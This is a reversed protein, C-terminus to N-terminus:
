QYAPLAAKAPTPAAAPAVRARCCRSPPSCPPASTANAVTGRYGSRARYVSATARTIIATCNAYRYHYTRVISGAARHCIRTAAKGRAPRGAPQRGSAEECSARRSREVEGAGAVAAASSHRVAGCEHRSMHNSTTASPLASDKWQREVAERETMDGGAAATRSCSPHHARGARQEPVREGLAATATPSVAM